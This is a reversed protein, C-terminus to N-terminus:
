IPNRDNKQQEKIQIIKERIATRLFSSLTRNTLICMIKLEVFAKKPIRINIQTNDSDDEKM